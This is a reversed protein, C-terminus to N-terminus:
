TPSSVKSNTCIKRKSLRKFTSFEIESRIHEVIRNACLIPLQKETDLELDYHEFCYVKDYQSAALGIKRDGRLQERRAMEERSCKVGVFLVPHDSLLDLCTNFWEDNNLVTDVVVNIGMTSFLKITTFYLSVMPETLLQSVVDENVEDTPEINPYKENIYNLYSHCMENCFEDVSLHQIPIEKQKILETSISTKGSSSTGNLLIILGQKM